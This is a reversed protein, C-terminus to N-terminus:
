REGGLRVPPLRNVALEEARMARLDGLLRRLDADVRTVIGRSDLEHLIVPEGFKIRVKGTRPLLQHAPWVDFGGEIAVPVVPVKARKIVLAAGGAIPQIEGDPTRSGEPFVLLARGAQLLAISAKMAGVDGAGQRVPFANCQRIGWGFVPPKFLESKALFSLVRPLKAAIYAPDVFSQHNSVLVVGGKLPVNKADYVKLDQCMTGIFRACSRCFDYMATSSEYGIHGFRPLRSEPPPPKPALADRVSRDYPTLEAM